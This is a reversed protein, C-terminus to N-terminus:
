SCYPSWFSCITLTDGGRHGAIWGGFVRLAAGMFAALM